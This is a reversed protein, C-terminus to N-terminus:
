NSLRKRQKKVSVLRHKPVTFSEKRHGESSEYIIQDYLYIDNRFLTNGEDELVTFYLIHVPVPDKLKITYPKNSRFIEILKEDSLPTKAHVLLAALLDFPRSVRMCGSSYVRYRRGFLTKNDTDHLYVAYKNPFMFKVRGLANNDGPQQVFRYPVKEESKEYPALDEATVNVEKNGLYAKIDHEDLYDPNERLVHILDRKILNDPITWTPNLVIYTMLDSFLPTPRDIRGVVIPMKLKLENFKYYRLMFEPINVEIHEPEFHRPYLKTKDLNTVIWKLHEKLPITMYYTTIRDIMGTEQILYRKQFRKVAKQLAVDFSDNLKLTKPYDGTIQLRKKIIPIRPSKDGLKLTKTGYPVKPFTQMRRYRTYIKYLMDYRSKLPILSELYSKPDDGKLVTYLTHVDPMLKVRMEWVSKIDDSEKLAALKEQVLNWDVDSQLIFRVAKLFADSMAVDSRALLRLSEADSTDTNDFLYFLEGITKSELDKFKYNFYPDKLARILAAAKARADPLIWFPRYDNQAYLQQLLVKNPGEKVRNELSEKIEQTLSSLTITTGFLGSVLFSFIFFVTRFRKM